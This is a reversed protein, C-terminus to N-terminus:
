RAGQEIEGQVIMILDAAAFRRASSLSAATAAQSHHDPFLSYHRLLEMRQDGTM